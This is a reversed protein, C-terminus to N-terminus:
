WRSQAFRFNHNFNVIARSHYDDFVPQKYHTSPLPPVHKNGGDNFGWRLWWLILAVAGEDTDIDYLEQLDIRTKYAVALHKPIASCPSNNPQGLLHYIEEVLSSHQECSNHESQKKQWWDKVIDLSSIANLKLSSKLESHHTSCLVLFNNLSPFNNNEANLFNTLKNKIHWQGKINSQNYGETYYWFIKLFIDTESLSSPDIKEQLRICWDIFNPLVVQTGSLTVSTPSDSLLLAILKPPAADEDPLSFINENVLQLECHHQFNINGWKAALERGSTLLYETVKKSPAPRAIVDHAYHATACIRVPIDNLRARWSYDVDEMYLFFAEDLYGIQDVVNRSILMCCGSIWEVYGSAKCYTKPHEEPFQAAEILANPHRFYYTTLEELTDYFFMGDPNASIVIDQNLTEFAHQLILNCAKTYGINGQSPLEHIDIEKSSVNTPLGNNIYTLCVNKFSLSSYEIANILSDVLRQILEPPNNYTVVAICIRINLDVVAPASDHADIAKVYAEELEKATNQWSYSTINAIEEPSPSRQNTMCTRLGRTIDEIDLPDVYEAADKFYEKTCGESTLLLTAGSIGAELAALGPTELLSPLAFVKCAKYASRLLPDHHEIAGLFLTNKCDGISCDSFYGSDRVHGILVLKCNVQRAAEILRHTNKRPEINGVCLIFDGTINYTERFASADVKTLFTEDIGNHTTVFKQPNTTPFHQLFRETESYSNPCVVDAISLLHEIESMPYANINDSLWLIPSIVLPIDNHNAYACFNASGSQVSFHHVVDADSLDTTWQNFLIVKHGLAELAEKSKLLQIEGGGPCQFAAPYTNFIIKM